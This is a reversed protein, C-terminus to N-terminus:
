PAPEKPVLKLTRLIVASTNPADARAVRVTVESVGHPWNKADDHNGYPAFSIRWVLGSQTKGASDTAAADPSTAQALLSAALAREAARTENFHTRTISQSFIGFLVTLSLGLIALAVIIELLTFGADHPPSGTPKARLYPPSLSVRTSFNARSLAGVSEWRGAKKETDGRSVLVRAERESTSTNGSGTV